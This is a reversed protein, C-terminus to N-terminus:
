DYMPDKGACYKTHSPGFYPLIYPISLISYNLINYFYSVMKNVWSCWVNSRLVNCEPDYYHPNEKKGIDATM